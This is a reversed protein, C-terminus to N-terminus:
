RGLAIVRGDTMSIFVRGAAVILGDFVPLADLRYEARTEGTAADVTRLKAGHRGKLAADWTALQQQTAAADFSQFAADEDIPDDPGAILLTNGALAMARVTMPVDCTWRYEVGARAPKKARRAAPPTSADADSGPLVAAFLQYDMVSTWRYYPQKRGYGFVTDGNHVLIRGGPRVRGNKTYGGCGGLFQNGYLWYSRHFYSDDTFGYAAFLHERGGKGPGLGIRNGLLDMTQSRMYLQEGDSSLVDPLAVPMTLGQVHTQMNEGTDPDRDDLIKESLLRGTDVDLRCLRLGGDLYMSRGAVATAVGDQVLVSGHVPWVSELQEFAVMRRDVPAARFRWALAGDSARLCYVAGDASGFILRGRDCTPPSDIRGAAAFSWLKKGSAVDLAHVVHRDVQAVFLRGDAVVPPTLRGGLRTEWDPRLKGPIEASTAGSRAADHRYAPWASHTSLPSHPTPLQGYAPGKQLRPPQGEADKAGRGEGRAAALVTFGPLRAEPYCACPSPPAYILGGAPMIGYLCGGRVWHNITWEGTALDVFEIGNRSSLIYNDTAKARYCRHHFWYTNLTPPFDDVMEGTGPDRGTYRGGPGGQATNGTWVKGRAVFLDEPSNYGSFPHDATWLRKGSDASFATMTDQGIDKSGWGVYSMHIKEGGAFLVMDDDVVLTPAFWSQLGRQEMGQWVPVPESTWRPKGTTRQLAVVREGDHYYVQETDVAMTLPIVRGAKEWLPRGTDADFARIVRDGHTWRRSRVGAWIRGMTPSYTTRHDRSKGQEPDDALDADLDPPTRNVLVLLLGDKYIIEEAGAMDGRSFLVRTLCLYSWTLMAVDGGHETLEVGKKAKGIAGDLDDVEALMEGWIALLWGVMETQSMGSDQALQLQQKCIEAAEQLRGQARLALALKLSVNMWLY